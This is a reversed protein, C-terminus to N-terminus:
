SRNRREKVGEMVFIAVLNPAGRSYMRRRLSAVTSRIGDCACAQPPLSIVGHEESQHMGSRQILDQPGTTEAEANGVDVHAAAVHGHAGKSSRETVWSSPGRRHGAAYGSDVRAQYGLNFMDSLPLRKLLRKCLRNRQRSSSHHTLLCARRSIPVYRSPWVCNAHIQGTRMRAITTAMNVTLVTSSTSLRKRSM